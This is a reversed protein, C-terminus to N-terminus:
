LLAEFGDLLLEVVIILLLWLLLLLLLAAITRTGHVTTGVVVVVRSVVVLVVALVVLLLGLIALLGGLVTLRLGLIALLLLTVVLLRRLIARLSRGGNVVAGLRGVVVNVAWEFDWEVAVHYGGFALAASGAAFGKHEPSVAGAAAEVVVGGL